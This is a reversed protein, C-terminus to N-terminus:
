QAASPRLRRLIPIPPHRAAGGRGCWRAYPDTGRRNSRTLSPRTCLNPSSRALRFLQQAAGTPGVPTRVNALPGHALRGGGGCQFKSIGRHCLERFRTQGTRWKPAIRRESGDNSIGFGLFKRHLEADLGEGRERNRKSRAKLDACAVRVRRSREKREGFSPENRQPRDREQRDERLRGDVVPAREIEAGADAHGGARRRAPERAVRQHHKEAAREAVADHM